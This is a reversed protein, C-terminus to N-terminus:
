GDAPEHLRRLVAGTIARTDAVPEPAPASHLLGLLRRLDQLLGRCEPCVAAHRELRTEARTRLESDLYASMRPPAWRHDRRFRLEPLLSSMRREVRDDASFIRLGSSTPIFRKRPALTLAIM